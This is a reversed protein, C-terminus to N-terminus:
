RGTKEILIFRYQATWYKQFEFIDEELQGLEEPDKPKILKVDFTRNEQNISVDIYDSPFLYKLLRRSNYITYGNIFNLKKQPM